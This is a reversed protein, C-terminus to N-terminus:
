EKFFDRKKFGATLFRGFARGYEKFRKAQCLGFGRASGTIVVVPM